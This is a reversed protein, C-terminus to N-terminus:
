PAKAEWTGSCNTGYSVATWTGSFKDNDSDYTGSFTMTRNGDPDLSNTISFSGDTIKWEPSSTIEITGSLTAPGCTWNSFQYSMKSIKTGSSTVTFVLKGFGTTAIWNGDTPSKDKSCSFILSMMIFLSFFFKTKM